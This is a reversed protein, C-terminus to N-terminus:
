QAPEKRFGNRPVYVSVKNIKKDPFKLKLRAFLEDYAAIAELRTEHDAVAVYVVGNEIREIRPPALAIPKSGASTGRSEEKSGNAEKLGESTSM